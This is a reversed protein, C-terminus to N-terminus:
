FDSDYVQIYEFFTFARDFAPDNGRNDIQPVLVLAEEIQDLKKEAKRKQLQLTRKDICSSCWSEQTEQYFELLYGCKDCKIINGETNIRSRWDPIKVLRQYTVTGNDHIAITCRSKQWCRPNPHTWAENHKQIMARLKKQRVTSMIGSHLLKKAM